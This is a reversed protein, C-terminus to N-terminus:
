GAVEAGLDAYPRLVVLLLLAALGWFWWKFSVGTPNAQNNLFAQLGDMAEEDVSTEEDGTLGGDVIGEGDEVQEDSSHFLPDEADQYLLYGLPGGYEVVQTDPDGTWGGYDEDTWFLLSDGGDDQDTEEGDLDSVGGTLGAVSM